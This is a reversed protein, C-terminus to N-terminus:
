QVTKAATEWLTHFHNVPGHGHGVSLAKNHYIANALWHKAHRAALELPQGKALEAALASSLSCGTGHTNGTAHRPGELWIMDTKTALLDPSQEGELHGGKLFVAKAGNQLLLAAQMEMDIRTVAPPIELLAAAEPLNPTIITALPMLRDRVIAIADDTLLKSGGKAVMVPDLVITSTPHSVLSQAILQGIDANGIMGIKVGDVRIDDFIADLQQKLFEIPPYHISRVGQTNQATLASIVAMGYTGCASFSKLDAQIGAGGSPDSGAITLLNKIM